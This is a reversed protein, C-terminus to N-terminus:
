GITVAYDAIESIKMGNARLKEVEVKHFDVWVIAKASVKMGLKIMEVLEKKVEAQVDM